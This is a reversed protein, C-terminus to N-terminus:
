MVYLRRDRKEVLDKKKGIQIIFLSQIAYSNVSKKPKSNGSEDKRCQRTKLYELSTEM